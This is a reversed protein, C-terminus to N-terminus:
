RRAGSRVAPAGGAPAQGNGDLVAHAADVATCGTRAALGAIAGAVQPAAFSTGSWEAYGAFDRGPREDDFSVFSSAVREGVAYADVWWAHNSFAALTEGEADLAAVAVVQKLAAPWFPRDSANNGAAAVIMTEPGFRALATRLVPSPRDDYTYGGLSLNLVDLTVDRHRLRRRLQSLGHVLALEDCIGDSGLVREVHLWAGPATRLVLGAVFTGHGAQSDLEYDRDGDLVERDRRESAAFWSEHAYWAHPSIGTDLIAVNVPRAPAPPAAPPPLAARPTPIDFPGGSYAPEGRYLHNPGVLRRPGRGCLEDCLDAVDVRAAPRLRLLSTGLDDFDQRAEVWRRARDEVEGTYPGAALVQDRQYLCDNVADVVVDPHRGVLRELRAANDLRM